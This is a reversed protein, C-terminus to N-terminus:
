QKNFLQYIEDHYSKKLPDNFLNFHVGEAHHRVRRHWYHRVLAYVRRQFSVNMRFSFDQQLRQQIISGESPTLSCRLYREIIAIENLSTRM